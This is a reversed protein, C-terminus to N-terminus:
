VFSKKLDLLLNLTVKVFAASEEVVVVECDESTGLSPRVSIGSSSIEM